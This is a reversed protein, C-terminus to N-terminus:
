SSIRPPTRCKGSACRQRTAGLGTAAEGHHTDSRSATSRAGTALMEAAATVILAAIALFGQFAQDLAFLAAIAMLLVAGSRWRLALYVPVTLPQQWAQHHHADFLDQRHLLRDFACSRMLSRWASRPRDMASCAILGLWLAGFVLAPVYTVVAAVGERSLWSSRWQSFARWAREPRGLHFTSSLLGLTVLGLAMFLAVAGFWLSSAPGHNFGLSVWCLLCATAPARPPPSCSSPIPPICAVRVAPELVAIWGLPLLGTWRATSAPDDRDASRAGIIAALSRSERRRASRPPLYKNVPKYGMEPLLDYGGREAVLQSVASAPDGLDGFHRAGTPCAKM